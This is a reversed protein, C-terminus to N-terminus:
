NNKNDDAMVQGGSKMQKKLQKLFQLLATTTTPLTDLRLKTDAM